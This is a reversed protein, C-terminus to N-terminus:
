RKRGTHKLHAQLLEVIWKLLRPDKTREVLDYIQKRYHKLTKEM